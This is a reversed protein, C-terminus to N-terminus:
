RKTSQRRRLLSTVPKPVATRSLNGIDETRAGALALLVGTCWFFPVAGFPAELVVGLTAVPLITVVTLLAITLLPDRGIRVRQRFSIAAIQCVVLAVLSLGVLGLRAYIGVFWNHPSRVGTYTSGELYALSGSEELFDNGFGGGLIQRAANEETWDIVLSWTLERAKQTGQANVQASTGAQMPDITALLRQGPTTQPLVVAIVLLLAPIMMVMVVRRSSLKHSSAYTVAFAIGLAAFLSILGARTGMGLVTACGVITALFPWFRRTGRMVQRFCMGVAVSVLAADIDPRIQFPPAGLFPLSVSFGTRNGVAVAIAVWAMHFILAIWFLTVTRQRAAATSTALTRASVYALIGYLFPTADRIWDFTPGNGLSTLFRLVVYIYLATFLRTPSAQPVYDTVPTSGKLKESLFWGLIGLAILADTIFFPSVGINTGWRSLAFVLVVASTGVLVKGTRAEPRSLLRSEGTYEGMSRLSDRQSKM